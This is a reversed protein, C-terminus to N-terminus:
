KMVKRILFLVILALLSVFAMKWRYVDDALAKKEANCSEAIANNQTKLMSLEIIVAPTKCEETLTSELADINQAMTDTLTDTVSPSSCGMLVFPIICLAKKM